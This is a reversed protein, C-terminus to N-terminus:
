HAMASLTKLFAEANPWDACVFLCKHTSGVVERVVFYSFTNWDERAGENIGEWLYDDGLDSIEAEDLTGESVLAKGLIAKADSGMAEFAEHAYISDYTKIIELRRGDVHEDFLTEQGPM